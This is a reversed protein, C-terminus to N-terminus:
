RLEHKIVGRGMSPPTAFMDCYWTATVKGPKEEIFARMKSRGRYIHSSIQVYGRGDFQWRSSIISGPDCTSCVIDSYGHHRSALILLRDGGIEKLDRKRMLLNGKGDVIAFSISHAGGYNEIFYENKGDGNLDVELYRRQDSACSLPMLECKAVCPPGSKMELDGLSRWSLAPSTMAEVHVESPRAM